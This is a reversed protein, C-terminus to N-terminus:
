KNKGKLFAHGGACAEGPFLGWLKVGVRIRTRTAMAVQKCVFVRECVCVCTRKGLGSTQM